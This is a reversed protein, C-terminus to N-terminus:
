AAATLASRDAAAEADEADRSGISVAGSDLALPDLAPLKRVSPSANHAEARIRQKITPPLSRAPAGPSWRTSQAPVQARAARHAPAQARPARSGPSAARGARRRKGRVRQDPLAARARRAGGEGTRGEGAAAIERGPQEPREPEPVPAASHRAATASGTLGLSTFLAVLATIFATWLNRVTIVRVAAM